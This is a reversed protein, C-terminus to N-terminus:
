GNVTRRTRDQKLAKDAADRDRKRHAVANPCTAFHTTYRPEGPQHFLARLVDGEVITTITGKPDPAADLPIRHGRETVAWIM